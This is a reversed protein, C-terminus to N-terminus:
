ATFRNPLHPYWPGVYPQLARETEGPRRFHGAFCQPGRRTDSVGHRFTDAPLSRVIFMKGAKPLSGLRHVKISHRFYQDWKRSNETNETKRHEREYEEAQEGM